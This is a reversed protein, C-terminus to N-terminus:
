KTQELAVLIASVRIEDDRGWVFVADDFAARMLECAARLRQNEAKLKAHEDLFKDMGTVDIM